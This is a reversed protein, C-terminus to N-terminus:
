ELRNIFYKNKKRATKETEKETNNKKINRM